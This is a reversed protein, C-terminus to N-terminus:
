HRVSAADFVCGRAWEAALGAQAGQLRGIPISLTADCADVEEAMLGEVERGFVLALKRRRQQGQQGQQQAELGGSGNSSSSNSSNGDLLDRMGPAM